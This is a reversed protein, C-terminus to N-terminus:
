NTFITKGEERFDSVPFLAEETKYGEIETLYLLDKETGDKMKAKPMFDSVKCPLTAMLQGDFNYLNVTGRKGVLTYSM